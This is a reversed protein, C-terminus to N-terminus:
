CTSSITRQTSTANIPRGQNQMWLSNDQRSTTVVPESQQLLLTSAWERRASQWASTSLGTAWWLCWKRKLPPPSAVLTRSSLKQTSVELGTAQPTGKLDVTLLTRWDNAYSISGNQPSTRSSSETFADEEPAVGKRRTGIGRPLAKERRFSTRSNSSSKRSNLTTCSRRSIALTLRQHTSLNERKSQKKPIKCKSIVEM